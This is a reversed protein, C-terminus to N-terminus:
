QGNADSLFFVGGFFYTYDGLPEGGFIIMINRSADYVATHSDRFTPDDTLSHFFTSWVPTGASGNAGALFWVDNTTAGEFALAGGFVTMVNSVPDYIASSFARAQPGGAPFLEQWVPTGATGNANKLIWVDNFYVYNANSGGFVILENSRPDYVATQGCRRGPGGGLPSLYTWTPTGGLGNANTLVWYDSLPSGCNGSGGGYIMLTNSGPDYGGSAHGRGYPPGGVPSLQSWGSSGGNGNANTLIWVDNLDSGGTGGFVIMRNTGPDYGAFHGERGSPPTGGPHAAVWNQVGSLSASPLLRWVDANFYLQSYSNFSTGGFIIMQQSSPDFVASHAKRPLPGNSIWTSNQAATFQVLAGLLLLSSAILTTRKM